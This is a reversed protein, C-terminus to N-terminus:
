KERLDSAGQALRFWLGTPVPDNYKAANDVLPSVHSTKDGSTRVLIASPVFEFGGFRRTPNAAADTNFM